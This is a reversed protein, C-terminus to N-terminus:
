VALEVDAPPVPNNAGTLHLLLLSYFRAISQVTDPSNSSRRLGLDTVNMRLIPEILRALSINM